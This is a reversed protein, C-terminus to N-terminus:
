YIIVKKITSGSNTKIEVSYLGKSLNATKVLTKNTSILHQGLSNYINLELLEIGEALDINFENKVPNPYIKSQSLVNYETSLVGSLDFVRAQGTFSGNSDNGVEGIAVFSGDSSLSLSTGSLDGASEGNIDSGISTWVGSINKYVKTYGTRSNHSISGVALVSGNSSLSISTGLGDNPAEGEIESGIQVWNGEQYEFVRVHGSDSGSTGNHNPAGVAIVTGSGSLSIRNFRDDNNEGVLDNGLQAWDTSQFQFVKVQGTAANHGRAAVAVISGDSSIDVQYGFQDGANDGYLDGGIKTWTGGQNEYVKVYGRGSSYNYAGVALFNGESSIDVSEGLIANFDTGDFRGIEVWTGGQNELIRVYGLYSNGAPAGVALISGDASLSLSTGLQHQEDDGIIDSGIQTWTGGQNEYVRAAGSFNNFGEGGIALTSGNESLSVSRGYNDNSATGEISSDVLVQSFTILPLILISAILYHLLTRM